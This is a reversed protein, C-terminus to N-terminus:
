YRSAEVPGRLAEQVQRALGLERRSLDPAEECGDPGCRERDLDLGVRGDVLVRLRLRRGRELAFWHSRLRLRADDDTWEREIPLGADGLLQRALGYVARHNTGAYRIPRLELEEATLEPSPLRAGDPAAAPFALRVSGPPPAASGAPQGAQATAAGAAGAAHGPAPPAGFLEAVLAVVASAIADARRVTRTASGLSRAQAVEVRRLEVVWTEGLRGLRGAVLEDAGLAGGLEVLCAADGGCGLMLRDKQHTLLARVDESSLVRSEPRFRRVETPVLATASEALEPPVGSAELRLVAIQHRAPAPATAPAAPDAALALALALLPLM